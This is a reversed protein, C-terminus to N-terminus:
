EHFPIREKDLIKRLERVHIAYKIQTQQRVVTKGDDALVAFPRGSSHVGTVRGRVDLVPSGSNGPYTATIHFFGNPHVEGITGGVLIPFTEEPRLVGPFGFVWVPTTRKLALPPAGTESGLKFWGNLAPGSLVIVAVDYDFGAPDYRDHEVIRAVRDQTIQFTPDDGRVLRWSPEGKLMRAVHVNTALVNSNIAFATASGGSATLVRYVCRSAERDDFHPVTEKFDEALKSLSTQTVVIDGELKQQSAQLLKKAQEIQAQTAGYLDQATRRALVRDIVIYTPVGLLLLALLVYLATFRGELELRVLSQVFDLSLNRAKEGLPKQTPCDHGGLQSERLVQRCGPCLIWRGWGAEAGPEGTGKDFRYTPGEPGFQLKEGGALDRSGQLRSGNLFTGHKSKDEVAWGDGKWFIRAHDRSAYRSARPLDLFAAGKPAQDVLVDVGRGV